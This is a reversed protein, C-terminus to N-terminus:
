TIEKELHKWTIGWACVEVRRLPHGIDKSISSPSEGKGYRSKIDLAELETLKSNSNNKGIHSEKMKQRTEKSHVRGKGAESIKKRTEISPSKGYLYHNVGRIAKGMNRKRDESFLVGKRVDSMKQRTEETLTNGKRLDSM